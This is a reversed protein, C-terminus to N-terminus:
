CSAGCMPDGRRASHRRAGRGACCCATRGARHISERRSLSEGLVTAYPEAAILGRDRLAALRELFYELHSLEDREANSYLPLALSDHPTM